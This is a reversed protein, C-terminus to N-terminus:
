GAEFGGADKEIVVGSDTKTSTSSPSPAGEVDVVAAVNSNDALSSIGPGSAAILDSKKSSSADNSGPYRKTHSKKKGMTELSRLLYYCTAAADIL